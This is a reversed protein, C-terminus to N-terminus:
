NPDLTTGFKCQLNGTKLSSDTLCIGSGEEVNLKDRRRLEM